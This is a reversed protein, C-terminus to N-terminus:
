RGSRGVITDYYWLIGLTYGLLVNFLLSYSLIDGSCELVVCVWWGGLCGTWCVVGLIGRFVGDLM